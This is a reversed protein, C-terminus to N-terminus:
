GRLLPIVNTLKYVILIVIVFFIGLAVKNKRKLVFAISAVILSLVSFITVVLVAESNVIKSLNPDQTWEYKYVPIVYSILILVVAIIHMLVVFGKKAVSTIKIM